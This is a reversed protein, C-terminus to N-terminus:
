CRRSGRDIVTEGDIRSAPRLPRRERWPFSGPDSAKRSARGPGERPGIVIPKGKPDGRGPM